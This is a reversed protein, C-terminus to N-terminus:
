SHRRIQEALTRAQRDERETALQALLDTHTPSTAGGEVVVVGPCSGKAKTLFSRWEHPDHDDIRGCRQSPASM